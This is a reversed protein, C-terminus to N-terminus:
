KIIHFKRKVPEASQLQPAGANGYQWAVVSVEVPYEANAPVDTFILEGDKLYAPGYEVYYEVPMGTNARANLRLSKTGAKRDPIEPFDIRQAIGKENRRPIVMVSQQVIRRHTGDGPYVALMYIEGTRRSPTFGFRYFRVAVTGPGTAVVPGCIPVIAIRGPDNGPEVAAGAKRGSWGEARGAPVRDLFVADLKMSLGDAGPKFAPHVQAHTRRDELLRGDQRYGLLPVQRGRYRSQYAELKEAFERDFAWVGERGKFEAFPAAPAMPGREGRWRDLLWGSAADVPKLGDEGNRARDAKELFYGLFGIIDDNIDFHGSGPDSVMMVALGPYEARFKAGRDNRAAWSYEGNRTLMPIGKLSRLEEPGMQADQNAFTGDYSIGALAREPKWAALQWPFNAMASHGLGVFPASALEGYGSLKGLDSFLNEVVRGQEPNKFDFEAGFLSPAIWICAYDLKRLTERFAPHELIPLELMNFQGIVVGRVKATEPPIYLYAVPPLGNESSVAGRVPMAWQWVARDLEMGLFPSKADAAEPIPDYAGSIMGGRFAEKERFQRCHLKGDISYFFLVLKQKGPVPDDKGALGLTPFDLRVPRNEAIVGRMKETVNIFKGHDGFWVSGLAFERSVPTDAAVGGITREALEASREGGDNDRYKVVLKKQVGPAPDKGVMKNGDIWGVYLGDNVKLKRFPETVDAWRDGAGFKATLVELASASFVAALSFAAAFVIKGFEHMMM